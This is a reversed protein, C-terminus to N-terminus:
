SARKMPTWEYGATRWAGFVADCEGCLCRRSRNKVYDEAHRQATLWADKDTLVLETALVRGKPTPEVDRTSVGFMQGWERGSDLIDVLGLKSLHLYERWQATTTRSGVCVSYLRKRNIRALTM